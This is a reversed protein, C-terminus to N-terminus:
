PTADDGSSKKEVNQASARLMGQEAGGHGSHCVLCSQTLDAHQPRLLDGSSTRTQLQGDSHCQMCLDPTPKRLLHEVPSFHPNHCWLCAMGVVPGHMFNFQETVGEHCKLCLTGSDRTLTVSSPDVHCELCRDEGFPPHVSAMSALGGGAPAWGETGVLSPDPVGDFFFNMLAYRRDPSCATWTSGVVALAILLSLGGRSGFTRRGSQEPVPQGHATV